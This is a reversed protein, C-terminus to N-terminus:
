DLPLGLYPTRVGTLTTMSVPNRGDNRRIMGFDLVEGFREFFSDYVPLRFVFRAAKPYSQMVRRILAPAFHEPVLMETVTVADGDQRCFAYGCDGQWSLTIVHGGDHEHCGVAYRFAPMDWNVFGERDILMNRRFEYVESLKMMTEMRDGTVQVGEKCLFRLDSRNMYVMRVQYCRHFGQKIYYRFLRSQAPVTLSYKIGRAEGLKVATDLLLAMLGQRRYDERTCAAYIYQASAVGGGESVGSPLLHLMAVPRRISEDMFALCNEPDYRNEFFYKIYADDDHFCARWLRQLDSKM